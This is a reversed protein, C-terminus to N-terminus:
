VLCVFITLLVGVAFGIVVGFATWDVQKFYKDIFYKESERTSTYFKYLVDHRDELINLEQLLQEKTRRDKM